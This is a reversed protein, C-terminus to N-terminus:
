SLCGQVRAPEREEAFLRMLTRHGTENYSDVEILRRAAVRLLMRDADPAAAELRSAVASIFVDRLKTRQVQLWERAETEELVM